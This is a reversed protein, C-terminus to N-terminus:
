GNCRAEILEVGVFIFKVKIKSPWTVSTYIWLPESDTKPKEGCMLTNIRSPKNSAWWM